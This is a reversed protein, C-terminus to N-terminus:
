PDFPDDDNSDDSVGGGLGTAKEVRLVRRQTTGGATMTIVYDGSEVITGGRRAGGFGGGPLAKSARVAGLVDRLVEQSVTGEEGEGGEAGGEASAEAGPAKTSDAGRHGGHHPLPSEGPREAFHGGGGGGGGSAREFLQGITGNELHERVNELVPKPAVGATALSDFVHDLKRATVLSDRKGAPSLPTPAPTKGTLDWTVHHMGAGGRGTLSKLTDGKVNTIVLKVTDKTSGATLRYVIDAGFPASRGKFVSQGATLDAGPSEGFAYATKPAFLYAGRKAYVSDELQELPAVDAIWIGRGHTAAILEHDRPHIKLDHVPVTPLGSMFKQWSQGRDRSIYAGVDTGVYLLDRNVPDERVVHLFDPGGRPLDSAISKFTKGFDSTVFLYPAFDDVRHDDFAVYFTASDFHSPEIRVVYTKPPVGLFRGTLNEWAAGNDHTLWVNGDDTGAMLLGPRVYSEALTTITGYTEAGTADNTIGGTSDMGWRVKAMDHTSLDSSIPLFDDGRNTSMLVRNGAAYITSPAHPSIFFPTNWNFRLDLETSDKEQMARLEALRKKRSSPLPKATDGRAVLISDEVQLYRPRWTPKVLPKTDGTAYDLRRLNGGQSEAYIIDPNTPDQATYFGDGGGVTFWDANTIAGRKRSPGCWSGNDQLGGCVRYPVAMDYSVEYFQGISIHNLFDFNGGRDWTQSVGGDDGVLFHEGDNPDIWMAHHDVHVGVTGNRVTKGGDDSFNFPTSSWYVRNPLKPDVRVQSYYFPRVDVDNMWQWTKGADQSRYLGSLLRQKIAAKPKEGASDSAPARLAHTAGRLSDAEVLAYVTAPTSRSIAVGIRGKMTEPFGGGEVKAWTAGADTSKWLASGPGGSKLFYPGRVREYSSAWIVDPNSPDMAVDVFGAKDSVFKILQWSKGGDTTKYLGREPNSGWVHGLAAVYVINPNTPHVIIRGIQQTKELGMLKWTLGGDTSKLIGGGPSISNRSNQEGTGAWVQNTDSPAIALAGMSIVRQDGFLPRFSTGANTTKWIGGAASAVYFTKSPSPIGVIDAIRGGMDAPGINRWSFSALTASDLPTARHQARAPTAAFLLSTMLSALAISHSANMPHAIM